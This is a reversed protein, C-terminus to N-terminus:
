KRKRLRDDILEGETSIRIRKSNRSEQIQVNKDFVATEATVVVGKDTEVARYLTYKSFEKGSFRFRDTLLDKNKVTKQLLSVADDPLAFRTCIEDISVQEGDLRKLASVVGILASKTELSDAKRVAAHLAKAARRTGAASTTKYDSDLFERIWYDSIASVGYRIQRDVVHGDWFGTTFSKGKYVTAKYNFANKMFIRDLFEVTLTSRGEDVYIGQEVPFRSIVLKNTSRNKGSILFLLGLGSRGTTVAQLSAAVNRGSDIRGSKMYAIFLDRIDNQKDTSNFTIATECEKEAGNFIGSLLQFLKGSREKVELGKIPPSDDRHKGPYVLFSHIKNIM